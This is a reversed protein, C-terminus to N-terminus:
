CTALNALPNDANTMQDLRLAVQLEASITDPSQGLRDEIARLRNSVTSRDVRLEAAASSVNRCAKFYARLTDKATLGGDRDEELPDLYTQRLSSSLLDDHLAATLLAVDPYHVIPADGHQAVPLAAVAQRHTLRWGDLGDAPTGCSVCTGAPWDLALLANLDIQVGERSGGLWTWATQEDARVQLLRCSMRRRLDDFEAPQPGTVVVGVHFNQLNYNLIGPDLSEGELLRQVVVRRRQEFRHPLGNQERNELAHALNRLIRSIEGDSYDGAQVV